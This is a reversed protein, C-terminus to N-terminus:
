KKGGTKTKVEQIEKTLQEVQVQLQAVVVEYQGRQQSVGQLLKQLIPLQEECKLGQATASVPLLLAVLVAAYRWRMKM